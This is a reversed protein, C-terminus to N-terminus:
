LRQALMMTKKVSFGLRTSAAQQLTSTIFPASPKSQTPKDERKSLAFQLQQLQALASDAEASTTPRFNIGNNRVVQFRVPAFDSAQLDAYIEWYEEPVFSRIEREREVVLKVAVSQVRGASLGRAIKAWLLPSVMYGVVRDLFRRAQQADVRDQNLQGPADFASQIAKKTIENFM